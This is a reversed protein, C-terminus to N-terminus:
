NSARVTQMEVRQVWWGASGGVHTVVTTRDCNGSNGSYGGAKQCVERLAAAADKRCCNPCPFADLRSVAAESSASLVRSDFSDYSKWTVPEEESSELTSDSTTSIKSKLFNAASARLDLSGSDPRDVTSSQCHDGTDSEVVDHDSTISHTDTAQCPNTVNNNGVGSSIDSGVTSARKIDANLNLILNPLEKEAVLRTHEDIAAAICHELGWEILVNRVTSFADGCELCAPGGHSFIWQGLLSPTV